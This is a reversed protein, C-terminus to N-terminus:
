SSVVPAQTHFVSITGNIYTISITLPFTEGVQLYPPPNFLILGNTATFNPLLPNSSGVLTPPTSRVLIAAPPGTEQEIIFSDLVYVLATESHAKDALISMNLTATIAIVPAGGENTLAIGWSYITGNLRFQRIGTQLCFQDLM